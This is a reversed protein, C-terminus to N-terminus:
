GSAQEGAAYARLREISLSGTLTEAIREGLLAGFKFMHGCCNTIALGAGSGLPEVIFRGSESLGYYCVKADLVRYSEGDRLYPRIHALVAHGTFAMVAEVGERWPPVRHWGGDQAPFVGDAADTLLEGMPHM